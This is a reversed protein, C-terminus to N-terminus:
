PLTYSLGTTLQISNKKFAPPPDNLFSDIVNTNFGFRKYVPLIIGISAYASYARTDTWAPSASLLQKLVINNPFKPNYSETFVSVRRHEQTRCSSPVGTKRYDDSGKFDLSQNAKQIVAEAWVGM